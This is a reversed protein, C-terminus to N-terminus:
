LNNFLDNSLHFIIKLEIKQIETEITQPASILNDLKKLINYFFSRNYNFTFSNSKYFTIENLIVIKLELIKENILMNINTSDFKDYPLIVKNVHENYFEYQCPDLKKNQNIYFTNQLFDKQPVINDYFNM